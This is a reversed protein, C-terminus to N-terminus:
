RLAAVIVTADDDFVGDTFDHVAGAIHLKLADASLARREVAVDIIRQEGFEEGAASRAESIGDTYFVLRDGPAVRVHSQVFTTDPFVGLM